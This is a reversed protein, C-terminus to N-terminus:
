KVSKFIRIKSNNKNRSYLKNVCQSYNHHMYGSFISIIVAVMMILLIPDKLVEVLIQIKSKNKKRKIENLGYKELRKDVEEFTLGNIKNM